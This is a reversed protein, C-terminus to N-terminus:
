SSSTSGSSPPAPRRCERLCRKQRPESFDVAELAKEPTVTILANLAPNLREIRSLFHGTLEVSSIENDALKRGLEAISLNHLM